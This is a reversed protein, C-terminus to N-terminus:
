RVHRHGALREGREVPTAQAALLSHLLALPLHTFGGTRYTLVEIEAPDRAHGVGCVGMAQQQM